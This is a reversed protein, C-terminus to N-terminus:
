QAKFDKIWHGVYDVFVETNTNHQRLVFPVKNAQAADLDARADGIMLCDSPDLMHKALTIGIATKKHTPSGFAAAFCNTLSLADLIKDIEPKPTASVLIFTQKYANSRLFEEVGEVWPSGIVDQMVLEGFQREVLNIKEATPEEGSWQIYLPLKDFRSMGGNAHHHARVREAIQSGFPRFLKAFAEAKVDVSEKIVGDFDWFILAANKLLSM